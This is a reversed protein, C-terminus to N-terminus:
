DRHTDNLIAIIKEAHHDQMGTEMSTQVFFPLQEELMDSDDDVIAYRIVEPHENLWAKIEEGRCGCNYRPTMGYFRLGARRLKDRCEPIVRWASSLVLQCGTAERIRRLRRLAPKSLPLRSTSRISNLVGDVDLFLVKIGTNDSSM